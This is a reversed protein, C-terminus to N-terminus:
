PMRRIPLRVRTKEWELLLHTSVSDQVPRITFKEVHTNLVEVKAIGRGVRVLTEFMRAPETADTTSLIISWENPGPVTTIVYAGPPLWVGAIDATVPLHLMTPENAGTRWLKGFEVLKDFVIRGRASPRSYCLKVVQGDLTFM